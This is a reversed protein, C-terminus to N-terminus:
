HKATAAPKSHNLASGSIGLRIPRLGTNCHQSVQRRPPPGDDRPWAAKCEPGQQLQIAQGRSGAPLLSRPRLCGSRRHCEPVNSTDVGSLLLQPLHLGKDCSAPGIQQKSCQLIIVYIGLNTQGRFEPSQRSTSGADARCMELAMHTVAQWCTGAKVAVYRAGDLNHRAQLVRPSIRAQVGLHGAAHEERSRGAGALGEETLGLDTSASWYTMSSTVAIGCADGAHCRCTCTM